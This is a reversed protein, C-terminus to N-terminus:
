LASKIDEIYDKFGAEVTFEPEWGLVDRARTIVMPQKSSRPPKGPIIEVELKPLLGQVMDVLDDFKIVIGTGINFTSEAPAPITAALEIARGVDKFYVYEFDRTSEQPINAM